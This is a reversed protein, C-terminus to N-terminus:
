DYFHGDTWWVGLFKRPELHTRTFLLFVTGFCLISNVNEM